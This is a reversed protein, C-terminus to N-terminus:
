QTRVAVSTSGRTVGGSDKFRVFIRNAAPDFTVNGNGQIFIGFTPTANANITTMVTPGIASICQGTAPNTQCLFINVPLTASGTDASATITGTTGVNVTAVAFVGTGNTGPINVIGDNTVTAALVVVDPVPTAPASLLLTNLGLTVPAPSSNGCTFSLQVDTPPFPATPTFALVSTHVFSGGVIAFRSNPSGTVQNTAPDTTQFLFTAPINTTSAIACETATRFGTNIIAAFVTATVGVKVSRSSPLIAAVLSPNLSAQPDPTRVYLTVAGRPTVVAQGQYTEVIGMLIYNTGVPCPAEMPVSVSAGTAPFVGVPVPAARVGDPTPSAYLEYALAAGALSSEDERKTVTWWRVFCEAGQPDVLVPGQQNQAHAPSLAALMLIAAVGTWRRLDGSPSSLGGRLGPAAASDTPSTASLAPSAAAFTRRQTREAFYQGVRFMKTLSQAQAALPAALALIAGSVFARRNM